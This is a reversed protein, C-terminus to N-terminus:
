VCAGRAEVPCPRGRVPAAPRPGDKRPVDRVSGPSPGSSGPLAALLAAEQRYDPLTRGL